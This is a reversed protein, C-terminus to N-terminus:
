DGCSTVYVRNGPGVFASTFYGSANPASAVDWGAVGFNLAPGGPLNGLSGPAAVQLVFPGTANQALLLNGDNAQGRPYFLYASGGANFNLATSLIQNNTATLASVGAAVEVQVPNWGGTSCTTPTGACQNFYVANNVQDYYSIAPAGGIPNLRVSVGQGQNAGSVQMPTTWTVANNTYSYRVRAVNLEQYAVVVNGNLDYDIAVHAAGL